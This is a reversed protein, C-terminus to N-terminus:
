ATSTTGPTDGSPESSMQLNETMSDALVGAIYAKIVNMPVVKGLHKLLDVENVEAVTTFAARIQAPSPSKDYQEDYEGKEWAEKTPFGAFEYETMLDPIFVMLVGHAKNGLVDLVNGANLDVDTIGSLILGLKSRLYGIRQPVVKYTTDGLVVDAINGLDAATRNLKNPNSM